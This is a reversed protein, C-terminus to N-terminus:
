LNRVIDASEETKIYFESEPSFYSKVLFTKLAIRYLIM